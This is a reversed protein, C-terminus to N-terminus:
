YADGRRRVEVVVANCNAARADGILKTVQASDSFGPHFADAWFARFEHSEARLPLTLLTCALAALCHPLLNRTRM